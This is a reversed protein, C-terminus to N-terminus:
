FDFGISAYAGWKFQNSWHLNFKLPGVLFNYAAEMGFAYCNGKFYDSVMKNFRDNSNEIGALGSIYFKRFPNYRLELSASALYQGAIIMNKLGFFQVQRDTYRGAIQGGIFNTHLISMDETRPDKSDRQITNRLHLEPIIAVRAGCPIVARFDADVNTIPNFSNDKFKHFDYGGKLLFNIGRTPYYYNDFSYYNISAFVGLYDGRLSRSSSSSTILQGLATKGDVENFRNRIGLKFNLKSWRIDTFYLKEEHSWYSAAYQLKDGASSLDFKYRAVSADINITPMWSLDLAYHVTAWLNIGVKANVDFKSGRLKNTNIGVNLLLAAWEETDIRLGLGFRSTPAPRCHIVLRYPEDEGMLSYSVSSFSGTGQLKSLTEEIEAKSVTDGSKFPIMRSLIRIEAYDVGEFDLDAIKVDKDAFNLVRTGAKWPEEKVKGLIEELKDKQLKAATYGRIMMTDVAERSFSMMNFEPISPKILIDPLKINKNFSNANPLDIFQNVIDIINNVDEYQVKLQSLDIGIIYDVGAAKAIDVPFNDLSGGDVLVMKDVRVPEFLAPISMTSRLAKKLSGSTWIKAKSSVLETAVCVFPIPLEAFNLSDQYGVTLSSFLNDVNYGFSLGAPMTSAISAKKTYIDKQKKALKKAAKDEKSGRFIDKVSQFPITLAYKADRMKTAYPVFRSEVNDSLMVSWDQSTFLKEMEDVKYGLSYLGGVLGGISTGCVFDVPLGIEELYRLAGVTAAGKAGGGSLVLGVTPRHQYRRVDDLRARIQEFALSDSYPDVSSM